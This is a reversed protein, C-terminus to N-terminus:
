LDSGFLLGGYIVREQNIRKVSVIGDLLFADLTWAVDTKLKRDIKPKPCFISHDQYIWIKQDIWGFKAFKTDRSDKPFKSYLAVLLELNQCGYFIRVEFSLYQTYQRLKFEIIKKLNIGKTFTFRIIMSLWWYWRVM